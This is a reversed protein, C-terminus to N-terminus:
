VDSVELKPFSATSSVEGCARIVKILAKAQEYSGNWVLRFAQVLEREIEVHSLQIQFEFFELNIEFYACLKLVGGDIKTFQGKLIRSVQGQSLDIKKCLNSQTICKEEFASKLMGAINQAEKSSLKM